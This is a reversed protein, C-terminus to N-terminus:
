AHREADLAPLPEIDIRHLDLVVTLLQVHAVANKVPDKQEGILMAPPRAQPLPPEGAHLMGVDKSQLRDDGRLVPGSFHLHQRLQVASHLVGQHVSILLQVVLMQLLDHAAAGSAVDYPHLGHCALRLDPDGLRCPGPHLVPIVDQASPTGDDPPVVADTMQDVDRDSLSQRDMDFLYAGYIRRLVARYRLGTQLRDLLDAPGAIEVMQKALMPVYPVAQPRSAHYPRLGVLHHHGLYEVKVEEVDELGYRHVGDVQIGPNRGPTQM